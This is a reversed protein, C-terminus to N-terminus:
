TYVARQRNKFREPRTETVPPFCAPCVNQFFSMAWPCLMFWNSDFLNLMASLNVKIPGQDEILLSFSVGLPAMITGPCWWFVLSHATAWDQFDGCMGWFVQLLRGMKAHSIVRGIFVLWVWMGHSCEGEAIAWLCFSGPWFIKSNLFFLLLFHDHWTVKFM